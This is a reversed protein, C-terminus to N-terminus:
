TRNSVSARWERWCGPHLNATRQCRNLEIKASSTGHRFRRVRLLHGDPSVRQAIPCVDDKEAQAYRDEPAADQHHKKAHRDFQKKLSTNPQSIPAFALM